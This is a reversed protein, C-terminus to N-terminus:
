KETFAEVLARRQIKGTATRPIADVVHIKKPCKFDALHDRCFSLLEPVPVPARLVVAATVEEGWTPHPVGFCVAEAVAPHKLLVQGIEMPAIKEGGRNILEKLRALLRLYGDPDIIGQDGTRFWGDVFSTTNAEPNSEYGDIISPGQIVVEGAHGMGLHSHHDHTDMISIKVGTGLGVSQARRVGPPLPNSAIQHSAETMGYAELVPAGFVHELKEMTHFSLPASASRIFRLHEAGIPRQDGARALLLRHMTPVASYWTARCERVTRWFSLPNFKEPVVMTGGTLLTALTSALLGHVHFLPMVTMAVDNATLQYTQAINEASVALNRHRLPVRKPRGTTGSTHLILAVDDPQPPGATRGTSTPFFRVTGEPDVDADLIPVGREAAARRAEDAGAPPLVLLKADTDELFFVFEDHRYAPNLPASTGAVSAGLFCVITELGNPLAMAVRAANGIGASAFIDAAAAVQRRLSDYTIRIGREPLVVATTEGPPRHLLELLTM